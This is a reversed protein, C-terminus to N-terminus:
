RGRGCCCSTATASSGTTTPAPWICRPPAKWWPRSCCTTANPGSKRGTRALSAPASLIHAMTRPAFMQTRSIAVARDHLMPRGEAYVLGVPMDLEANERATIRYVCDETFFRPWEEIQGSDLVACYEINFHEVLPRLEAARRAGVRSPAYGSLQLTMM